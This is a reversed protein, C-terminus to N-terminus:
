MLWQFSKDSNFFDMNYLFLVKTIEEQMMLEKIDEHYYRLDVIYLEKFHEALYPIMCHAYSDKVILLKETSDTNENTIRINAHNGDLFLTYKDKILMNEYKFLGAEKEGTDLYETMYKGEENIYAEVIDAKAKSTPAKSYLSGYFEYKGEKKQFDELAKPEIEMAKCLERYGYWAGRMTWHHDTRYYIYEGKHTLLTTAPNVFQVQESLNDEVFHLTDAQDDNQIYSSIEDEYVFVANPILTFYVSSGEPLSDAFQNIAKTHNLVLDKNEKYLQLYRGTDTMYVQNNVRKGLMLELDTKSKVFQNKMIVHDSLYDEMGKEFDGNLISRFSCAPFVALYRNEMESFPNDKLLISGLGFVLLYIIFMFSIIKQKM